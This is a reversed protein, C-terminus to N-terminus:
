VNLSPLSRSSPSAHTSAYLSQIISSHHSGDCPTFMGSQRMGIQSTSRETASTCRMAALPACAIQKESIGDFSPSGLMWLPSHSGTNAAHLSRATVSHMCMPDDDDIGAADGSAGSATPLASCNLLANAEIISQSNEPFIIWNGFSFSAYESPWIPQIGYASSRASRTHSICSGHVCALAMTGSGGDVYKLPRIKPHKVSSWCPRLLRPSSPVSLM